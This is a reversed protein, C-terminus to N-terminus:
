RDANRAIYVTNAASRQQLPNHFRVVEASAREFHQELANVFEDDPPDNSWLAFVGGPHLHEGVRALETTEYFGAHSPHLLHRPSHDIDVVVAHFRRGPNAPGFGAQSRLMGFFDGPVLACRPDATLTEGAPILGR